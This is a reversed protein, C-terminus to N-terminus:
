TSLTTIKIFTVRLLLPSSMAAATDLGAADAKLHDNQNTSSNLLEQQLYKLRIASQQHDDAQIIASGTCYDANIMWEQLSYNMLVCNDQFHDHFETLTLWLSLSLTRISGGPWKANLIVMTTRRAPMLIGLTIIVPISLSIQGTMDELFCILLTPFGQFRRSKQGDSSMTAVYCYNSGSIFIVFLDRM